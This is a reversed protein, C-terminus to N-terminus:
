DSLLLHWYVFAPVLEELEQVEMTEIGCNCYFKLLYSSMLAVHLKWVYHPPGNMYSTYSSLGFDSINSYVHFSADNLIVSSAPIFSGGQFQSVM